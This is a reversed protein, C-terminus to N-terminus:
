KQANILEEGLMEKILAAGQNRGIIVDEKMGEPHELEHSLVADIGVILRESMDKYYQAQQQAPRDDAAKEAAIATRHVNASLANLTALRKGAQWVTYAISLGAILVAATLALLVWDTPSM